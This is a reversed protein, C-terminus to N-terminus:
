FKLTKGKKLYSLWQRSVSMKDITEKNFPLPDHNILSALLEALLPASCLGRAGLGTLIFLDNLVAQQDTKGTQLYCAKIKQYDAVQGFYPFHDRTM